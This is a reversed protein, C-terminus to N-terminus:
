HITEGTGAPPVVPHALVRGIMGELHAKDIAFPGAVAAGLSIEIAIVVGDDFPNVIWSLGRLQVVRDDATDPTKLRDMRRLMAELVFRVDADTWEAAPRALGTVTETTAHHDGRLWIDVQFDM